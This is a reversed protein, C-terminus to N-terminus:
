KHSLDRLDTLYTSVSKGTSKKFLRSFYGPDNFGLDYALEKVSVDSYQLKRQAEQILRNIIWEKPSLGSFEKVINYLSSTTMSLKAAITHVDHQETLHTEVALKFEIYKSLRSGSIIEHDTHQFYAKNFEFLLINLYTLIVEVNKQKEPSHVLQFLINFIAKVRQKSAPDFAILSSNLPNHLFPYSQPLLALLSEDFGFNNYRNNKNKPSNDFIQNPFGCVMQSDSLTIDQSDAHYTATGQDMFVFYYFALKHPQLLIQLVDEPIAIKCNENLTLPLKNHHKFKSLLGKTEQM